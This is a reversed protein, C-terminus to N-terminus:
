RQETPTPLTSIGVTRKGWAACEAPSMWVDVRNAYKPSTRTDVRRKGVGEIEIWTGIPYQYTAVSVGDERGNAGHSEVPTYCSTELYRVDTPPDPITQRPVTNMQRQLMELKAETGTRLSVVQVQLIFVWVLLAIVVGIFSWESIEYPKM